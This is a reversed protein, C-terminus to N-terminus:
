RAKLVLYRASFGNHKVYLPPKLMMCRSTTSVAETEGSILAALVTALYRCCQESAHTPLSSEDALRPLEDIQDPYLGAYRIAYSGFAHDVWKWQSARFSRWFRTCSKNAVFKSLASRTAVGIDFVAWQGLIQQDAVMRCLSQGPREFGLRGAALGELRM